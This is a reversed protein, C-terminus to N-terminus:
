KKLFVSSGKLMCGLNQLTKQVYLNYTSLSPSYCYKETYTCMKACVNPILMCFSLKEGDFVYTCLGLLFKPYLNSYM